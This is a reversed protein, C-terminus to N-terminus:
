RGALRRYYSAIARGEPHELTATRQKWQAEREETTLNPTNKIEIAIARERALRDKRRESVVSASERLRADVLGHWDTESNGTKWQLYDQLGNMYMRMDLPRGVSRMRKIVYTAVEWCQIPPLYDPGYVFGDLAVERMKASIEAFTASFHLPAIRTKLARLEPMDEIKRNAILIIKGTFRVHIDTRHATWTIEREPPRKRSQSWLASRLVGWASKDGMMAECDEILHISSPMKDLADVLGRATMRSNHLVYDARYKRLTEITTYSKSTGGEGWLYLGTGFNKVLGRVRDRILRLKPELTKLAEKDAKTLKVRM